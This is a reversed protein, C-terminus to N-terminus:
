RPMGLRPMGLRLMVLWLMRLLTARLPICLRSPRAIHLQILQKRTICIRLRERPAIRRIRWIWRLCRLRM